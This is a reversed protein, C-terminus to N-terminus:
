WVLLVYWGIIDSGAFYTILAAIIIYPGFPVPSKRDIIRLSLLLVSIVAGILISLFFVLLVQQWGLLFGLLGFLKMDGSGIGGQTIFIIIFILLFAIFAGIISSYWPELPYVTRFLIVLPLYFLLLRDPIIMYVLDSVLIIMGLSILIIAGILEYGWGYVLFSSVFLLGTLLETLPYLFSFKAKCYRCRGRLALYSLVPIMDWGNLTQSCSSCYSRSTSFNEGQPMRRGVVNFFSGFIIGFMFMIVALVVVM